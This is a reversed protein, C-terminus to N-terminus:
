FYLKYNNKPQNILRNYRNRYYCEGQVMSDVLYSSLEMKISKEYKSAAREM